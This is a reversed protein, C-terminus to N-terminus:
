VSDDSSSSCTLSRDDEKPSSPEPLNVKKRLVVEGLSVEEGIREISLVIEEGTLEEEAFAEEIQEIQDPELRIPFTTASPSRPGTLYNSVAVKSVLFGGSWREVERRQPPTLEVEVRVYKPGKPM